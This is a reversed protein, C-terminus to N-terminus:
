TEWCLRLLQYLRLCRTCISVMCVPQLSVREKVRVKAELQRTWIINNVVVPMNKGTPPALKEAAALQAPDRHPHSSPIHPHSSSLNTYTDRLSRLYSTLQGLLTERVLYFHPVSIM